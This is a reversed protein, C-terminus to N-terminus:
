AAYDTLLSSASPQTAINPGSILSRSRHEQDRRETALLRGSGGPRAAFLGFHPVLGAAPVLALSSRRVRAVLWHYHHAAPASQM